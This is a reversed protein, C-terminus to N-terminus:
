VRVAKSPLVTVMVRARLGSSFFIFGGTTSLDRRAATVGEDGVAGGGAGSGFSRVGSNSVMGAPGTNTLMAWLSAAAGILARM